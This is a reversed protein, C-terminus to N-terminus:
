TNFFHTSLNKVYLPHTGSSSSVSALVAPSFVPVEVLCLVVRSPSQQLLNGLTSQLAAQLVVPSLKSALPQVALASTVMVQNSIPIPNSSIETDDLNRVDQLVVLVVYKSSHAIIRLVHTSVHSSSDEIYIIAYNAKM